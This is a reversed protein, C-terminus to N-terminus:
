PLPPEFRSFTTVSLSTCANNVDWAFFLQSNSSIATAAQILTANFSQCSRFNGAADRASCLVNESFTTGSNVQCGIMQNGDASNRATGMAGSATRAVTNVVVPASLKEGATVVGAPVVVLAVLLLLKKM